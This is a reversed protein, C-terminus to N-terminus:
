RFSDHGTHPGPGAPNGHPAPPSGRRRRDGLAGGRGAVASPRCGDGGPRGGLDIITPRSTGRRSGASTRSGPARHRAAFDGRRTRAGPPREGPGIGLGAFSGSVHIVTLGIPLGALPPEALRRLGRDAAGLRRHLGSGRLGPGPTPGRGPGDRDGVAARRRRHPRARGTSPRPLCPVLATRPLPHRGRHFRSGRGVSAGSVPPTWRAAGAPFGAAERAPPPPAPERRRPRSGRRGLSRARDPTAPRAPPPV